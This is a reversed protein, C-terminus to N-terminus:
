PSITAIPPLRHSVELRSRRRSRALVASPTVAGGALRGAGRPHAAAESVTGRLNGRDGDTFVRLYNDTTGLWRGARRGEWLVRGITGLHARRFAEEAAAATELM